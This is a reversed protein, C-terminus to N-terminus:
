YLNLFTVGRKAIILNPPLHKKVDKSTKYTIFVEPIVEHIKDKPDDALFILTGRKVGELFEIRDRSSAMIFKVSDAVYEIGEFEVEADLSKFFDVYYLLTKTNGILYEYFARAPIVFIREPSVQFRPLLYFMSILKKQSRGNEGTKGLFILIDPKEKLTLTLIRDFALKSGSLKDFDTILEVRLFKKARLTSDSLHEEYTTIDFAKTDITMTWHPILQSWLFFSLALLALFVFGLFIYDIFHFKKRNNKLM